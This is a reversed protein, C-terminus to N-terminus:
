SLGDLEDKSIGTYKSITAADMGDAKMQRAIITAKQKEGHKFGRKEGRKEGIEIGEDRGEDRNAKLSWQWKDEAEALRQEREDASLRRITAVVKGLEIGEKALAEMECEKRAKMLRLWRWLQTDDSADPLKPLELTHIEQMDSLLTGNDKNYWKEM